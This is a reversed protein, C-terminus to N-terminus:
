RYSLSPSQTMNRYTAATCAPCVPYSGGCGSDSLNGSITHDLSNVSEMEGNMRISAESSSLSLEDVRTVTLEDSGASKEDLNNSKDSPVSVYSVDFCGCVQSKGLSVGMKTLDNVM